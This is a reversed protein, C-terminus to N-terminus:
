HLPQVDADSALTEGTQKSFEALGQLTQEKTQGTFAAIQEASYVPRGDKDVHTAPPLKQMAREMCACALGCLMALSAESVNLQEDVIIETLLQAVAMDDPQEKPMTKRLENMQLCWQARTLRVRTRRQQRNM